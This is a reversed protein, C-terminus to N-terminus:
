NVFFLTDSINLELSDGSNSQIFEPDYIPLAYISKILFIEEKIMSIFDQNKLLDNNFKWLGKGRNQRSKIFTLVIPNHDSKYSPLIEIKPDLSLLDDSM